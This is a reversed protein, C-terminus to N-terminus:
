GDQETIDFNITVNLDKYKRHNRILMKTNEKMDSIISEINRIDSFSVSVEGKDILDKLFFVEKYNGYLASFFPRIVKYRQLYTTRGDENYQCFAESNVVEKIVLDSLLEKLDKSVLIELFIYESKKNNFQTKFKITYSGIRKKETTENTM